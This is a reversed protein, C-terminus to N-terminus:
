YPHDYHPHYQQHSYPSTQQVMTPYPSGSNSYSHQTSLEDQEGLLEKVEWVNQKSGVSFELDEKTISDWYKYVMMVSLLTCITGFFMGDVYHKVQKCILVSFVYMLVQGILFFAAGFLIDGLPWLDDLTNVVLIIQSVVYILFSIGNIIFMFAWLAGPSNYSFPGMNLFTCLAIVGVILGILFSSLRISWLSIPTGDEAFQFGVFGNLLLCWFAASVVGVHIAAFYTYATNSTPIIDTILLLELFVSLMYLYFFMVIEKRGVATYKCRVHYIMIATMIIAVVDIVLTAPQFILNGGLDVNRSYCEPEIGEDKGMLPCLPLAVTKCIGNFSFAEFQFTIDVM